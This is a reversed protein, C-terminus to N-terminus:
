RYRRPKALCCFDNNKAQWASIHCPNLLESRHTLNYSSQMIILSIKDVYVALFEFDTHLLEHNWPMYTDHLCVYTSTFHTKNWPLEIYVHRSDM